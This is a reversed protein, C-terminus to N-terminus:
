ENVTYDGGLVQQSLKKLTGVKRLQALAKDFDAKLATDSKRFIYYTNSFSVPGGVIKIRDGFTKNWSDVNRKVSFTADIIGDELKKITTAPDNGSVYAVKVANNNKKNYSNIVYASNTGAGVQITKGHLDKLSNIDNRGKAVVLHLIYNTYSEDGFLYKAARDDNKEFQHAGVDVKKAELSLLINKFELQNLEFKYQPLLKNVAKLVEIEYGTLNGKEDLYCYPKYGNGTGIVITKPEAAEAVTAVVPLATVSLAALLAGAIIRISFKM